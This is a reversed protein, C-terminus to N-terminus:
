DGQSTVFHSLAGNKGVFQGSIWTENIFLDARDGGVIARTGIRYPNGGAELPGEYDQVVDVPGSGLRGLRLASLRLSLTQKTKTAM